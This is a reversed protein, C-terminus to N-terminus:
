SKSGRFRRGIWLMTWGFLFLIAPPLVAFEAMELLHQNIAKRHQKDQKKREMLCFAEDDTLDEIKTLEHKSFEEMVVACHPEPMSRGAWKPMTRDKAIMDYKTQINPPWQFVLQYSTFACLYVTFTLWAGFLALSWNM